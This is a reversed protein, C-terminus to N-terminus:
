HIILLREDKITGYVPFSLEEGLVYSFRDDSDQLMKFDMGILSEKVKNVASKFDKFDYGTVLINMTVTGNMTKEILAFM